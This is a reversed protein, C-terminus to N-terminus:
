MFSFFNMALEAIAAGEPDGIIGNEIEEAVVAQALKYHEEVIDADMDLADIVECESAICDGRLYNLIEMFDENEAYMTYDIM